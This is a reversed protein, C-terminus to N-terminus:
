IDIVSITPNGDTKQLHEVFYVTYKRKSLQFKFLSNCLESSM